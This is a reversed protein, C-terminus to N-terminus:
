ADNERIRNDMSSVDGNEGDTNRLRIWDLETRDALAMARETIQNAQWSQYEEETSISEEDMILLSLRLVRILSLLHSAAVCLNEAALQCQLSSLAVNAALPPPPPDHLRKM